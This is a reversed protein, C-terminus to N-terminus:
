CCCCGFADGHMSPVCTQPDRIVWRGGFMKPLNLKEDKPDGTSIGVEIVQVTFEGEDRFSQSMEIPEARINFLSGKNEDLARVSLLRTTSLFELAGGFYSLWGGEYANSCSGSQTWLVQHIGTGQKGFSWCSPKM